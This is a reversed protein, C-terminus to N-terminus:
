ENIEDTKVDAENVSTIHTKDEDGAYPGQKVEIMESAEIMQFGHGGSVLLMVDGAELVRSCHYSDDDKYFDARVRGSKVFLVENTYDVRRPMLNHKHAPIAYGKPRNMYGLQQSFSNPTFFEIGEKSFRARVIVALLSNACYINEVPVAQGNASHDKM